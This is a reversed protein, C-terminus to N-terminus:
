NRLVSKELLLKSLSTPTNNTAKYVLTCFDVSPPCFLACYDKNSFCPLIESKIIVIIVTINMLIIM